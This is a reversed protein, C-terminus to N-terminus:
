PRTLTTVTVIPYKQSPNSPTTASNLVVGNTLRMKWTSNFMVRPSKMAIRILVKPRWNVNALVAGHYDASRVITAIVAFGEKTCSVDTGIDASDMAGLVPGRVMVTAKYPKTRDTSLREELLAVEQSRGSPSEREIEPSQELSLVDVIPCIVAGQAGLPTPSVFLCVLGCLAFLLLREAWRCRERNLTSIWLVLM